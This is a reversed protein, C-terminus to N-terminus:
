KKMSFMKSLNPETNKSSSVRVSFMRNLKKKKESTLVADWVVSIMLLLFLFAIVVPQTIFDLVPGVGTIMYQMKGIIASKHFTPDAASNADGQTTITDGQVNIIRHTISWERYDIYTIVDGIEYKDQEQIIILTGVPVNPEMSGTQVVAAGWGFIMPQQNGAVRQVASYVGIILALVCFIYLIISFVRKVIKLM